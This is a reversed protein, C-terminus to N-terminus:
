RPDSTGQERDPLMTIGYPKLTREVPSLNTDGSKEADEPGSAMAASNVLGNQTAAMPLPIHPTTDKAIAAADATPRADAVAPPPSQQAMAPLARVNSIDM